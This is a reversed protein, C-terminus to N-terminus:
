NCRAGLLPACPAAGLCQDCVEAMSARMGELGRMYNTCSAYLCETRAPPVCCGPLLGCWAHLSDNAVSGLWLFPVM